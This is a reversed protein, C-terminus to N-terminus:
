ILVVEDIGYQIRGDGHCHPCFPNPIGTGNNADCSCPCPLVASMIGHDERLEQIISAKDTM